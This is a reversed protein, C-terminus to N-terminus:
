HSELSTKPHQSISHSCSCNQTRKKLGPLESIFCFQSAVLDFTVQFESYAKHNSTPFFHRWKGLVKGILFSTDGNTSIAFFPSWRPLLTSVLPRKLRSPVCLVLILPQFSNQAFWGSLLPINKYALTSQGYSPFYLISWWKFKRNLVAHNEPHFLKALCWNNSECCSYYFSGKLCDQTQLGMELRTGM